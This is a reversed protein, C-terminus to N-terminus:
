KMFTYLFIGPRNAESKTGNESANGPINSNVRKPIFISGDNRNELRNGDTM